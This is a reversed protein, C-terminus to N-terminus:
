ERSPAYFEHHIWEKKQPQTMAKVKLFSLQTMSLKTLNSLSMQFLM